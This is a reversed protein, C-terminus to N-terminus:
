ALLESDHEKFIRAYDDREGPHLAEVLARIRPTM